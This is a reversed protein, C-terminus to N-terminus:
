LIDAYIQNNIKTFIVESPFLNEGMNAMGVITMAWEGLQEPLKYCVNEPKKEVTVLPCGSKTFGVSLVKFRNKGENLRLVPQRNADFYIKAGRQNRFFEKTQPEISEIPLKNRMQQFHTELRRCICSNCYEPQMDFDKQIDKATDFHNVFELLGLLSILDDSYSGAYIKYWDNNIEFVIHHLKKYLLLQSESLKFWRKDLLTKAVDSNAGNPTLSRELSKMLKGIVGALMDAMRVGFHAKSDLESSNKLGVQKAAVLTKSEVGAKGEKDITLSFDTVGKSKLFLDLGVFPMHYDWDLTSPTEVDQLVYLINEFAENERRKLKLNAKNREIRDSLFDVLSSVFERPSKYLSCIVEQPRYTLIAKVISYRAADMDFLLSNHYNKFLQLIVYEIKSAISLFVYCDDDFISFFDDLMEINDKNLSAFGYAFQKSRFSESKLEGNRKRYAYREEFDLYRHEIEKEKDSRWGVVAAIFSDYYTECTITSFNIVRSHESEDYYFCYKMTNNYCLCYNLPKSSSAPSM